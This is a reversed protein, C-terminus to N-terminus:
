EIIEVEPVKLVKPAPEVPRLKLEEEGEHHVPPSVVIKKPATQPGGIVKKRAGFQGCWNNNFVKPWHADVHISGVSQMKPVYYCANPQPAHRRCEGFVEETKHFYLCKECCMGAIPASM